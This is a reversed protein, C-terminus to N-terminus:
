FKLFFILAYIFNVKAHDKLSVGRLAKLLDRTLNHGNTASTIPANETPLYVDGPHIKLHERGFPIFEQPEGATIMAEKGDLNIGTLQFWVDVCSILFLLKSLLSQLILFLKCNKFIYSVNDM